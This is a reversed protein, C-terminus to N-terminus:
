LDLVSGKIEIVGHRVAHGGAIGLLGEGRDGLGFFHMHLGQGFGDCAAGRLMTMKGAGLVLAVPLRSKQKEPVVGFWLIDPGGSGRPWSFAPIQSNLLMRNEIFSLSASVQPDIHSDPGVRGM